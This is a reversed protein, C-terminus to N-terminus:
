AQAVLLHNQAAHNRRGGDDRRARAGEQGGTRGAARARRREATRKKSQKKPDKPVTPWAILKIEGLSGLQNAAGPPLMNADEVTPPAAFVFQRVSTGGQQMWGTFVHSAKIHRQWGTDAGDIYLRTAITGSFGSTVRVTFSKGPQAVVFTGAGAFTHQRLPLGNPDEIAVSIMNSRPHFVRAIQLRLELARRAPCKRSFFSDARAFTLSEKEARIIRRAGLCAARYM